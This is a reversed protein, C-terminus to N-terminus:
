RKEEVEWGEIKGRNIRNDSGKISVEKEGFLIKRGVSRRFPEKEIVEAVSNESFVEGKKTEFNYRIKDGSAQQNKSQYKAEGEAIIEKIKRKDDFYVKIQENSSIKGGDSIFYPEGKFICFGEEQDYELEKGYGDINEKGSFNVIVGNCGKIRKNSVITIDSGSLSFNDSKIKVNKMLRIPFTNAAMKAKESSFVIPPEDRRTIQGNVNVYAEKEKSKFTIIKEASLIGNQTSVQANGLFEFSEENIKGLTSSSETNGDSAKVPGDLDATIVGNSIIGKGSSCELKTKLKEFYVNSPAVFNWLKDVGKYFILTETTLKAKPEGKQSIIVDNILTFEDMKSNKFDFKLNKSSFFFKDTEGKVPEDLIINQLNNKSDLEIKGSPSVIILDDKKGYIPGEIKGNHNEFDIFARSARFLINESAIIINGELYTIKKERDYRAIDANGRMKDKEFKAVTESVIENQPTVRFGTSEIIFNDSTIIKAEEYLRLIRQSESFVGKKALVKDTKDEGKPIIIFPNTLEKELENKELIEEAYLTYKLQNKEKVEYSFNKGSLIANGEKQPLLEIKKPGVFPPKFKFLLVILLLILLFMLIEFLRNRSM